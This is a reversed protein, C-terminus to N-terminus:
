PVITWENPLDYRYFRGTPRNDMRIRGRDSRLLVGYNNQVQVIRRETLNFIVIGLREPALSARRMAPNLVRFPRDSLAGHEAIWRDVTDPEGRICHEDFLSLGNRVSDALARDLSELQDLVEKHSRAGLSCAAALMKLGHGPGRFSIVGSSDILTFRMFM